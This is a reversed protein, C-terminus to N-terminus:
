KPYVYVLRCKLIFKPFSVVKLKYLHAMQKLYILQLWSNLTSM